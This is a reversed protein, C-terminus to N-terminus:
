KIKFSDIKKKYKEFDMYLNHVLFECFTHLYNVNGLDYDVVANDLISIYLDRQYPQISIPLLNAGCLLSNQVIRAVRGNGDEFPHIRAIHFHSFIAKELSSKMNNVSVIMESVEKDILLPETTYNTADSIRVDYVRYGKVPHILQFPEILKALINLDRYDYSQKVGINELAYTWANKHRDSVTKTNERKKKSNNFFPYKTDIELSLSHRLAYNDICLSARKRAVLESDFKDSLENKILNEIQSVSDTFVGNKGM